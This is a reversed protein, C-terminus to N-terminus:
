SMGSGKHLKCLQTLHSPHFTRTAYSFREGLGIGQSVNLKGLVYCHVQCNGCHSSHVNGTSPHWCGRCIIHM